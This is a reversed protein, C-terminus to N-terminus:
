NQLLKRDLISYVFIDLFENSQLLNYDAFKSNIVKAFFYLVDAPMFISESLRPRRGLTAAVPQMPDM